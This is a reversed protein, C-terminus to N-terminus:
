HNLTLEMVYDDMIFGGGIDTQVSDVINFGMKKYAAISNVNYKNVTLRIHSLKYEWRCLAIAEELFSRAAGRGRYEKKVYLKSLLLYGEKPECACYGIMKYEDRCNATFYVYEGRKIDEYIREPSQFKDLMYDVQEAGIIPTYHERWIGAALAAVDATIIKLDDTYKYHKQINIGKQFNDIIRRGHYFRGWFDDGGGDREEFLKYIFVDVEDDTVITGTFDVYNVGGFIYYGSENYRTYSM